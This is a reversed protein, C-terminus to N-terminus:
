GLAGRIKKALNKMVVPKLLISKIGIFEMKDQPMAESFGTCLLIPIDPHIKILETSLKDGSMNPMTMDTIVLDFQDPSDRFAELADISSIHSTVKYGLRQLMIKEMTLIAEEDDVLLIRETGGQIREKSHPVQEKCSSKEVPFYVQFESGKGPESYVKIVGDMSKVIGHVVSLGMGTGKGIEKTTFFPDFINETLNKDMGVGTDAVTLCVYDGSAVGPGIIDYEGLEIEQLSVVLEGGSEEMAHYANTTLNMIIQHIQTPDATILGCNGNIDQTINITTPITARILKLAEKIIPQMKMLQLESSKPRSFTLIQKVLERARIAGSYIKKLSNHVPSNEPLDQMLMETHGLVPFLINNFDHAIGGALTGISEMKQAQGIQKQLAKVKKESLIKETVDRGIGSIYSEAGDPKVLSSKYEIYIKEKNKKFYCTIGEHYGQKKIEGIYRSIFNSEMKPEMFDTVKHGIFEDMDYGFLRHMAPNASLFRGDLDQTYILDTISEFLDRFRQESQRANEEALKLETIDRFVAMKSISGNVHVIPSNSIHYSCHNKPSFVEQECHEGKQVRDHICWPCKVELHHISKFCSEGTADRGTRKIMAANMYEVHFDPTCIYAPDKMAEMMSRYKEESEQLTEAMRKREIIKQQLEATRQEVLEKLHDRYKTLEDEVKKREEIQTILKETQVSLRHQIKYMSMHTNIRALIESSEVPKTVYDTGGAELAKVKLETEGLSSIFIVPLHKTKHDAKLRRCVEVGNLGPLNIDMLILDPLKAQVSRLALEGDSAPRVQYGATTLIELILKLHSKNDEVVLIDGRSRNNKNYINM